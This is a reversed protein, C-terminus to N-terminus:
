LRRKLAKEKGQLAREYMAESEDLRGQDMYLIGLNYVTDLTSTHEPGLAKEKGRLAREYMAEADDLRGQDVFLDGLNHLAWENGQAVSVDRTTQIARCRGAHRILRRQLVWYDQETSGPVHAGVCQIALRAMGVDHKENLVNVTWMHVCGHMGYGRSETHSETDHDKSLANPEILGFDCLVRVTEDFSLTNETLEQFWTPGSRHGERLMEFWLDEKDFYAWLRLLLASNVNQREVQKYSIGWTSYLARDEYSLLKPTM